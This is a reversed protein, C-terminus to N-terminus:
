FALPVGAAVVLAGAMQVLTTLRYLVDDNDYASAFWTFNMWGWWIAFFVMGYSVLAPAVSVSESLAHHLENSAQAISVVFCLDFLLELPTSSRHADDPHRASLPRVWRPSTPVSSM